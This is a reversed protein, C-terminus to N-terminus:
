PGGLAVLRRKKIYRPIHTRSRQCGFSRRRIGEEQDRDVRLWGPPYLFSPLLELAGPANAMVPITEAANRGALSPFVNALEEFLPTDKHPVGCVM